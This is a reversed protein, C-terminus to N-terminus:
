RNMRDAYADGDCAPCIMIYVPVGTRSGAVFGVVILHLGCHRCYHSM